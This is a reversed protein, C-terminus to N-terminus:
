HVGCFASVLNLVIRSREVHKDSQETRPPPRELYRGVFDAAFDLPAPGLVLQAADPPRVVPHKLYETQRVNADCRFFEARRMFQNCQGVFLHPKTM